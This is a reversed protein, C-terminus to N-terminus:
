YLNFYAGKTLGESLAIAKVKNEKLQDHYRSAVYEVLHEVTTETDLVEVQMKYKNYSAFFEGRDRSLYAVSIQDDSESVVNERMVFITGDLDQAIKSRLSHLRDSYDDLNERTYELQEDLEDILQIFSLHGHAINQCGWSTSNKLGHTYTFMSYPLDKYLLSADVSNLCKVSISEGHILKLHENLYGELAKGIFSTGYHNTDIEVVASSPVELILADTVVRVRDQKYMVGCASSNLLWLKHDFGNERSDILAKIDSKIRSFDVVVNEDETVEGTVLFTPNFSGGVIKGTRDIYAHDIVTLNSLFLTSKM